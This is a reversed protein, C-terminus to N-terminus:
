ESSTSFYDVYCDKRKERKVAVVGYGDYTYYLYYNKTDVTKKEYLQRGYEDYVYKYTTTGRGKLPELLLEAYGSIVGSNVLTRTGGPYVDTARSM